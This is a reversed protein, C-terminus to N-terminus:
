FRIREWTVLTSDKAVGMMEFNNSVIKCTSSPVIFEKCVVRM